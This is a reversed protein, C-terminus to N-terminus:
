ATVSEPRSRALIALTRLRVHRAQPSLAAGAWAIATEIQIHADGREMAYRAFSRLHFETGRLKFGLARRVSLYDSVLNMM